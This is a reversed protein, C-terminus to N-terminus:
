RYVTAPEVWGCPLLSLHYFLVQLREDIFVSFATPLTLDNPVGRCVDIDSYRRKHTNTLRLIKNGITSARSRTKHESAEGLNTVKRSEDVRM